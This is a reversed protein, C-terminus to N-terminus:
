AGRDKADTDEHYFYGGARVRYDGGDLRLSKMEEARAAVAELLQMQGDRFQTELESVQAQSLGSFHAAREFYPAYESTVNVTAAQLHDGMNRALYALQDESGALPQYSTAKLVVREGDVGVTGAALLADLLTRPHVDRRVDWALAEFSPADGSRPLARGQYNPDSVWLAVLRSLHTLRPERPEFDRLRAVDRRQLGTLVSVRSDTPKAESLRSAADVYHGKLREALDPFPVGLAVMLRAFPSLLADLKDLM